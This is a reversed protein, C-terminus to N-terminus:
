LCLEESEWHQSRSPNNKIVTVEGLDILSKDEQILSSGIGKFKERGTNGNKGVISKPM